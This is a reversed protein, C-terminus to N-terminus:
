KGKKRRAPPKTRARARRRLMRAIADAVLVSASLGRKLAFTRLQQRVDRPLYVTFIVKAEPNAAPARGRLITSM